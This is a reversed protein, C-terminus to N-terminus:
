QQFSCKPGMNVPDVNASIDKESAPYLDGIFLDHLRFDCLKDIQDM